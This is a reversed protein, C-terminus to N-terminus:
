TIIWINWYSFIFSNNNFRVWFISATTEIIQHSYILTTSMFYFLPFLPIWCSYTHVLVPVPSVSSETITTWLIVSGSTLKDSNIGTASISFTVNSNTSTISTGYTSYLILLYYVSLFVYIILKTFLYIHVYIRIKKNIVSLIFYAKEWSGKLKLTM